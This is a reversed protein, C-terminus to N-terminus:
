VLIPWTGLLLSSFLSLISHHVVNNNPHNWEPCACGNLDNLDDISKNHGGRIVIRLWPMILSSFSEREEVTKIAEPQPM